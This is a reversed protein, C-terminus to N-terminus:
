IGIEVHTDLTLQMGISRSDKDGAEGLTSDLIELFENVEETQLEDTPISPYLQLNKSYGAAHQSLHGTM